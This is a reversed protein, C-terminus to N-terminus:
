QTMLPRRSLPPETWWIHDRYQVDGLHDPRTRTTYDALTLGILIALWLGGAAITLRILSSSGKVHMFWLMVLAAKTAAIALAVANNLGGLDVFAVAVTVATLILLAAFVAVYAFVSNNVGSM